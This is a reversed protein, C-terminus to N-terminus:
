EGINKPDADKDAYIPHTGLIDQNNKNSQPRYDNARNVQLRWIVINPADYIVLIDVLDYQGLGSQLQFRNVPVEWTSTQEHCYTFHRWRQKGVIANSVTFLLQAVSPEKHKRGVDNPFCYLIAYRSWSATQLRFPRREECNKEM